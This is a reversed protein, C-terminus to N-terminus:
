FRSPITLKEQSTPSKEPVTLLPTHKRFYTMKQFVFQIVSHTLLSAFHIIYYRDLFIINGFGFNTNVGHVKPGVFYFLSPSQDMTQFFMQLVHTLTRVGFNLLHLCCAFMRKNNTRPHDFRKSLHFYNLNYTNVLYLLKSLIHNTRVINVKYLKSHRLKNLRLMVEGM